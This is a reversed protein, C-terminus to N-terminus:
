SRTELKTDLANGLSSRVYSNEKVHFRISLCLRFNSSLQSLDLCMKWVGEKCADKAAINVNM